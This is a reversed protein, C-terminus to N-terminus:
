SMMPTQGFKSNEQTYNPYKVATQSKAIDAFHELAQDGNEPDVGEFSFPGPVFPTPCGDAVVYLHDAAIKAHKRRSDIKRYSDAHWGARRQATHPLVKGQDVTIYVFHDKEFDPNLVRECTVVKEIIEKFQELQSPIRWGQNPMYIPLDLFRLGHGGLKSSFLGKNEIDGVILPLNVKKYLDIDWYNEQSLQELSREPNLKLMEQLIHSKEEPSLPKTIFQTNLGKFTPITPDEWSPSKIIVTELAQKEEALIEVNFSISILFILFFKNLFLKM